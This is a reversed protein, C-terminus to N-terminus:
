SYKTTSLLKVLLEAIQCMHSKIFFHGGPFLDETYKKMTYAAWQNLSHADVQSDETGSICHIPISVISDIASRISEALLLDSRLIPVFMQLVAEHAFLEEPTGSLDRIKRILADDDDVWTLDFDDSLRLHPPNIGSLVLVGPSHHKACESILSAVSFALLGGLSHGFYATPLIPLQLLGQSIHKLVITCDAVCKEKIRSGRGPLRIAWCDFSAPLQRTFQLYALSDAGAYPFFVVRQSPTSTRKLHTLWGLEYVESNNDVNTM